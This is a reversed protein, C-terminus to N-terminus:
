LPEARKSMAHHGEIEVDFDIDSADESSSSSQGNVQKKRQYVVGFGNVPDIGNTRRSAKVM